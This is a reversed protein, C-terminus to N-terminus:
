EGEVIAPITCHHNPNGAGCYRCHWNARIALLRTIARNLERRAAIAKDAMKNLAGPGASGEDLTALRDQIAAEIVAREEVTRTALDAADPATTDRLDKVIDAIESIRSQFWGSVREAVAWEEKTAYSKFHRYNPNGQGICPENPTPAYERNTEVSSRLEGYSANELLELRIAVQELRSQISDEM